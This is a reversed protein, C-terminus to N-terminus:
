EESVRISQGLIAPLEVGLRRSLQIAEQRLEETSKNALENPPAEKKDGFMGIEKGLLHLAQNSAAWNAVYMGTPNGNRDLVPVAAKAKMANDWLESMVEEKSLKISEMAQATTVAQIKERESLIEDRRKLIDTNRKLLISAAGRAGRASFGAAVYAKEQSLGDALGAAFREHKANKLITM